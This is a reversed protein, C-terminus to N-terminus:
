SWNLYILSGRLDTQDYTAVGPSAVYHTVRIQEPSFGLKEALYGIYLDVEVVGGDVRANENEVIALSPKDAIRGFWNLVCGLTKMHSHIALPMNAIANDIATIDSVDTDTYRNLLSTEALIRRALCNSLGAIGSRDQSTKVFTPSTLLLGRAPPHVGADALLSNWSVKTSDSCHLAWQTSWTRLGTYRLDERICQFAAELDSKWSFLPNKGTRAMRKVAGYLASLLAYQCAPSMDMEVILNQTKELLNYLVESISMKLSESPENFLFWEIKELLSVTIVDFEEEQLHTALLKAMTGIVADALYDGGIFTAGRQVCELAVTGSGCFPDMVFAFQKVEIDDMIKHIMALSNSEPVLYWRHIQTDSDADYPADSHFTLDERILNRYEDVTM